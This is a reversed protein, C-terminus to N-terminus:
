LMYFKKKKINEAPILISISVTLHTPTQTPSLSWCCLFAQSQHLVDVEVEKNLTSKEVLLFCSFIVHLIFFVNPIAFNEQKQTKPWIIQLQIYNM